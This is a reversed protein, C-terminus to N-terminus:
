LINDTIENIQKDIKNKNKYIIVLCMIILIIITMIIPYNILFQFFLSSSVYLLFISIPIFIISLLIYLFHTRPTFFQQLHQYYLNESWTYYNSTSLIDAFNLTLPLVLSFFVNGGIIFYLNKNQIISPIDYNKLFLFLYITSIINFWILIYFRIKIILKFKSEYLTINDVIENEQNPEKNNVFKIYHNQLDRFLKFYIIISFTYIDKFFSSILSYTIFLDYNYYLYILLPYSTLSMLFTFLFSYIIISVDNDKISVIAWNNSLYTEYYLYKEGRPQISM